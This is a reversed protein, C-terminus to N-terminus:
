LIIGVSWSAFDPGFGKEILKGPNYKVYIKVDDICIGGMLEYTILKQKGFKVKEKIKKDNVDYWKTKIRSGTNFNLVPEVFLGFDKYIKQYYGASVNWSFIRLASWKPTGEYPAFGLVGDDGKVYRQDGRIKFSKDELGFKLYIKSAGGWPHFEANILGLSFDLGWAQRMPSYADDDIGNPFTIGFGLDTVLEVSGYPKRSGPAPKGDGFLPVSFDLGHSLRERTRVVANPGAEISTSFYYNSDEESGIIEIQQSKPATVVTVKSPNLVTLTDQASLSPAAALAALLFLFTHKKM